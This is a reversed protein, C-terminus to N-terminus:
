RRRKKAARRANQKHSAKAKSARSPTDHGADAILVTALDRPMSALVMSAIGVLCGLGLIRM